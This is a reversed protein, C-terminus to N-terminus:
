GILEPRDRDLGRKRDSGQDDNEDQAYRPEGRHRHLHAADISRTLRSAKGRTTVVARGGNGSLANRWM